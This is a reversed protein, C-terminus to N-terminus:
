AKARRTTDSEGTSLVSSANQNPYPEKGRGFDEPFRVFIAASRVRLSSVGHAAQQYLPRAGSCAPQVDRRARLFAYVEDIQAACVRSTLTYSECQRRNGLFRIPGPSKQLSVPMWSPM